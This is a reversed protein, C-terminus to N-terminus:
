QSVLLQASPQWTDRALANHRSEVVMAQQRLNSELKQFQDSTVVPAKQQFEAELERQKALASEYEAQAKLLQDDLSLPTPISTPQDQSSFMKMRPV